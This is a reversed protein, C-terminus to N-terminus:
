RICSKSNRDLFPHKCQIGELDKGKLQKITKYNEIKALQM